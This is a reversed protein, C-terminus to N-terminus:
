KHASIFLHLLYRRSHRGTLLGSFMALLVACCCWALTITPSLHTPQLYSAIGLTVIVVLALPLTDSFLWSWTAEPLFRNHVFPVWILLFLLNASFYVIGAGIAGWMQAAIILAPVLSILMLLNGRMHLHLDGKAFQLIFPMVLVGVAANALGYWFLIPAASKAIEESGTWLSLIEESFLGLGGGLGVFGVVSLQSTLGYLSHLIENEGREALITMRPQVVQHLPPVLIMVGSAAMTALTFYGYEHLSLIGSLVLKDIQTLVVWMASLFAMSGVMPLLSRVVKFDSWHIGGRPIFYHTLCINAILEISSAILQFGFFHEPANSVYLLLPVVGVFRLTAFAVAITNVLNQQELGVLVGRHLGALWRLAIAGGMLAVCESVTQISLENASLWSIAIQDSKGWLLIVVLLALIGQLGELARIRCAAEDLSITGARFRSMERSLVPTLGMDLVQMWAQAMLFFGVLGFAEPGLYHLYIPMLAIGLLTVYGQILISLSISSKM